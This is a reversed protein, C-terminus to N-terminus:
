QWTSWILVCWDAIMFILLFVGWITILKIMLKAKKMVQKPVHIEYPEKPPHKRMRREIQGIYKRRIGERPETYEIKFPRMQIRGGFQYIVLAYGIFGLALAGIMGIISFIISTLM